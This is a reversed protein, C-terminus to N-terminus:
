KRRFSDLYVLEGRKEATTDRSANKDVDPEFQNDDDYDDVDPAETRKRSGSFDMGFEAHPDFINNIAALPITLDQPTGEFILQVSFSDDTLTLNKFQNQLVISLDKPFRNRLHESIIVGPTTTKFNIFYHHNGPLGHEIIRSLISRVVGYMAEAMLEEYHMLDEYELDDSM